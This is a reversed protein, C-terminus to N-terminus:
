RGSVCCDCHRLLVDDNSSLTAAVKAPWHFGRWIQCIQFLWFRECRRQRTAPNCQNCSTQFSWAPQCASHEGLFQVKSFAIVTRVETPLHAHPTDSTALLLLPLSANLDRLLSAFTCRVTDSVVDWWEGLHPMYVISPSTRRAERFVQLCCLGTQLLVLVLTCQASKGVCQMSKAYNCRATHSSRPRLAQGITYM